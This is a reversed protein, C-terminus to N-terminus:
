NNFDEITGRENWAYKLVGKWEEDERERKSRKATSQYYLAVM